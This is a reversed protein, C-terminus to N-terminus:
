DELLALLDEATWHSIDGELDLLLDAASQKKAKLHLMKEEITGPILYRKALVTKKQGIRHARDIAQKEVAENWWPDMLIVTDAATLNLGVGGAKLSLLFLSADPNEQFTRVLDGRKEGSIAGDLYLYARNTKDLEAAILQLLSTFQSYVLVKRKQQFAEELESLLTQVKSGECPNGVLRPDCCIQRLRLIAELVEMRHEQIGERDIKKLLGSKLNSLYSDYVTRQPEDMEIWIVSEIKEPLDIQVEEKRRRLIFPRLKRRISELEATQFSKKEGLLDPLLFRFQSWIEEPRNEMPTGSLAVRFRGKLGFIAQATQTSATKIANSEDLAIAEFNVESFLDEDLRLIAYSVLIWHCKQLESAKKLRQAGAHVYVSADPLFRSIEMRWNFLLSTPAAILIPLSNKFAAALRSFFALVQVTKGLGMEDALLGSFNWRHLFALWDVGKQQYPLLTGKFSPDPYACEIAGVEGRLGEAMRKLNEEWKVSPADLFALLAAAQTKRLVWADEKWEGEIFSITKRDLLGVSQDNLEVWAKRKELAEMLSKITGQEKGFHIQGRLVIANNEERLDLEFGSQKCVTRGKWDKIKWGLELLFLLCDRVKESPAYYHSDGVKKRIFGTELLDKEWEAEKKKLRAKGEVAPALDEFAIRGTGPYEMWLDAFCGTADKLVLEPFVELIKEPVSEKWLLPPEEELFKKKLAGELLLPGRLFLEIWKWSLETSIPIVIQEYILWFPTGPFLKSCAELPIEKGKWQAVASLTCSKESHKEGKWYIKAAPESSLSLIKGQFFLRGTKGLLRLAEYSSAAPVEIQQFTLTDASRSANPSRLHIKVLLALAEKDSEKALSKLSDLYLNRKSGQEELRVILLHPEKFEVKYLLDM